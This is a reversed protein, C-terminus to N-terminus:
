RGREREREVGDITKVCVVCKKQFLCAIWDGEKKAFHGRVFKKKKSDRGGGVFM